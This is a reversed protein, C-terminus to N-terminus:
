RSAIGPFGGFRRTNKHAMCGNPGILTHDCSVLSSIPFNLTDLELEEQNGLCEVSYYRWRCFNRSYTGQPLQLNVINFRSELTFEVKKDTITTTDVYMIDTLCYEKGQDLYGNFVRFHIVRNGQLGEGRQVASGIVKNVNTIDIKMNLVEGTINTGIPEISVPAPIYVKPVDAGNSIDPIYFQIPINRVALFLYKAIRVFDGQPTRDLPPSFGIQNGSRSSIARRTGVNRGEEFSILWCFGDGSETLDYGAEDFIDSLTPSIEVLSTTGMVPSIYVSSVEVALIDIIDNQQKNKELLLRYPLTRM